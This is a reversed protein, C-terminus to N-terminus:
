KGLNHHENEEQQQQEQLTLTKGTTPNNRTCEAEFGPVGEDARGNPTYSARKGGEERGTPYPCPIPPLLSNGTRNMGEPTGLMPQQQFVPHM